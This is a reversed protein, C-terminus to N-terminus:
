KQIGPHADLQAVFAAAAGVAEFVLAADPGEDLVKVAVFVGQVVAHEVQAGGAVIHLDFQRHLPVIGILFAYEAEGVVDRLAIAAGMESAQAAGQGAGQVLVHFRFPNQFLSLDFGAAVVGALAQGRHQRDLQMIGLKGRLGLVLQHGGLDLRRDLRRHGLFQLFVQQFIGTFGAGNGALDDIGGTGALGRAAGALHGPALTREVNGAQGAFKGIALLLIRRQRLQEQDLAIGGTARGFLAAVPAKLGNQRELALNQVHFLGAEVLHQGRDFDARQNGREAATDAALFEIGVLDAVKADDDHRVRINVARM